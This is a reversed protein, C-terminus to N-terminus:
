EEPTLTDQILLSDESQNLAFKAVATWKEEDTIDNAKAYDELSRIFAEIKIESGM